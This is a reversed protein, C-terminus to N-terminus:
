ESDEIIAGKSRDFKCSESCGAMNANLRKSRLTPCIYKCGGVDVRMALMQMKDAVVTIGLAKTCSNCQRPYDAQFKTRQSNCTKNFTAKNM